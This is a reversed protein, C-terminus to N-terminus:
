DLLRTPALRLQMVPLNAPTKGEYFNRWCSRAEAAASRPEAVFTVKIWILYELNPSTVHNAITCAFNFPGRSFFSSRAAPLLRARVTLRLSPVLTAAAVTLM